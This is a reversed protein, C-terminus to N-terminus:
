MIYPHYKVIKIKNNYNKQIRDNSTVFGNSYSARKSPCVQWNWSGKEVVMYFTNNEILLPCGRNTMSQYIGVM